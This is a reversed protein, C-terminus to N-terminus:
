YYCFLLRLAAFYICKKDYRKKKQTSLNFLSIFVSAKLNNSDYIIKKSNNYLFIYYSSQLILM